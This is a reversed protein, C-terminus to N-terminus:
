EDIIACGVRWTIIFAAAALLVDWGGYVAYAAAAAIAARRVVADVRPAAPEARRGFSLPHVRTV